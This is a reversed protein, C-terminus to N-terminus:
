INGGVKGCEITRECSKQSVPNGSADCTSGEPRLLGIWRELVLEGIEQQLSPLYRVINRIIGNGDVGAEKVESQFTIVMDRIIEETVEMHFLFGYANDGYRFAQHETWESSALSVAGKPLEFIDGHWHFAMFSRPLDKLLRDLLAAAALKTYHWGIEERKGRKVNAGLAAALLQSGLCIGLVPKREYLAKEILHMEHTLFPYSEQEYVGMPGGLVILGAADGMDKPVPQGQFTRVYNPAIGRSLFANSITGLTEGEGHQLVCVSLM